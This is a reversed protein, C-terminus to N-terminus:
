LPKLNQDQSINQPREVARPRQDNSKERGEGRGRKRSAAVNQAQRRRAFKQGPLVLDLGPSLRSVLSLTMTRPLLLNDHASLRQAGLRGVYPGPRDWVDHIVSSCRNAPM